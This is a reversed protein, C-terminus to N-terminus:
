PISSKFDRRISIIEFHGMRAPISFPLDKVSYVSHKLHHIIESKLTDIKDTKDLHKGRQLRSSDSIKVSNVSYESHPTIRALTYESNKGTNM